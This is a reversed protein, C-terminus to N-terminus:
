PTTVGRLSDAVAAGITSSLHLDAAQRSPRVGVVITREHGAVVQKMTEKDVAGLTVTLQHTRGRSVSFFTGSPNVTVRTLKWSPTASASTQVEFKVDHSLVNAKFPATVGFNISNTRDATIATYLWEKLKLDSQMLFLGGPRNEDPCRARRLNRVLHFANMKNIRTADASGSVGGALNFVATAPSPPLWNVSPNASTKENTVLSLTIQVGWDDM